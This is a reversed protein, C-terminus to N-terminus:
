EEEKTTTVPEVAPTETPLVGNVAGTVGNQVDFSM